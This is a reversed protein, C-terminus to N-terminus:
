WWWFPALILAYLISSFLDAGYVLGGSWLLTQFGLFAFFFFNFGRLGPARGPPVALTLNSPVEVAAAPARLLEEVERRAASRCVLARARVLAEPRSAERRPTMPAPTAGAATRPLRTLGAHLARAEELADALLNAAAESIGGERNSACRYRLLEGSAILAPLRRRWIEAEVEALPAERELLPALAELWRAIREDGDAPRHRSSGSDHRTEM